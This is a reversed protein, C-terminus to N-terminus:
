KKRLMMIGDRIPLLLNEVRPDKHSVDNFSNIAVTDRDNHEKTNLVKGSWLVNDILLIGGKRVRPLVMEYYATYNEKDADIFVLDFEDEITPIIDLANGIRFDIKQENESKAIYKRVMEEVEEDIDITIVKGGDALGEAMCIASYGTFTGIELVTKPQVMHSVLSLFRGQVKGSLMVPRLMKLHTERQLEALVNSEEQSHNEAYDLIEKSIFDM